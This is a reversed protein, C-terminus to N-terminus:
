GEAEDRVIIDVRATGKAGNVTAPAAMVGRAVLDRKYGTERLAAAVAVARTLAREWSLGNTQDEREAHGVVEIRNGTRAVVAGLLFLLRRGQETFAGGSDDFMAAGPLVIVVRDDERRVEVAALEANSAAQSRLLAGLYDLNIASHPEVTAANFAAKPEPAADSPTAATSRASTFAKALGTWRQAEPESMSYMLVFFALLLSMLDTFSILWMTRGHGGSKDQATPLKPVRIM